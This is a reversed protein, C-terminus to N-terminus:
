LTEIAHLGYAALAPLYPTVDAKTSTTVFRGSIATEPWAHGRTLSAIRRAIGAGGDVFAMHPPCFKALEHTVLPFHTCGLVITDIEKGRPQQLLGEIARRYISADVKEGRMEAEAAAALDAAGHRLLLVGAGFKEALIDIYPQRVTAQTGLLGIVGSRTREAAPKIAPVTGVIPIDLVQRVSDLAITSATNCAITILRPKYREALKGLLVPVRTAIETESKGGYPFAAQDAVYIIPADPLLKQAESLISLGGIGSDFFLLPANQTPITESAHVTMIVVCLM